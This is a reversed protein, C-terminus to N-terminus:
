FHTRLISFQLLMKRVSRLVTDSEETLTLGFASEMASEVTDKASADSIFVYLYASVAEDKNGYVVAGMSVDGSISIMKSEDPKGLDVEQGEPFATYTGDQLNNWGKALGTTADYNYMGIVNGNDDYMMTDPYADSNAYDELKSSISDGKLVIREDYTLDKPDTHTLTVLNLPQNM